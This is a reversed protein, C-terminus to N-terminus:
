YRRDPGSAWVEGTQSPAYGSTSVRWEWANSDTDMHSPHRGRLRVPRTRAKLRCAPLHGVLAPTAFLSGRRLWWIM